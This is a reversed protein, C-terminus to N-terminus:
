PTIWVRRMTPDLLFSLPASGFGGADPSCSVVRRLFPRYDPVEVSPNRRSIGGPFRGFPPVAMPQWLLFFGPRFFWFRCFDTRLHSFRQSLSPFSAFAPCRFVCDTPQRFSCCRWGVLRNQLMRQLPPTLPPSPM